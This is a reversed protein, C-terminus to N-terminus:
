GPQGFVVSAGAAASGTGPLAVRVRPTGLSPAAEALLGPLLHQLDDARGYKHNGQFLAVMERSGDATAEEWLATVGHRECVGAVSQREFDSLM